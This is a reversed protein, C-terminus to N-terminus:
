QGIVTISCTEATMAANAPLTLTSTTTTPNWTGCSTGGTATGILLSESTYAVPFAYTQATSTNAYGSLACTAIKLTGQLTQSCNATGSTGNLTTTSPNIQYSSSNWIVDNTTWTMAGFGGTIDLNFAKASTSNLRFAYLVTPYSTTPFASFISNTNGNNGLEFQTNGSIKFTAQTSSPFYFGTSADSMTGNSAFQYTGFGATGNDPMLLSTRRWVPLSISSTELGQFLAASFAYATFTYGTASPHINDANMGAQCGPTFSTYNQTSGPWVRREDYVSYGYTGSLAFIQQWYGELLAGSTADDACFSTQPSGTTTGRPTNTMVVTATTSPISLATLFSGLNSGFTNAPVSGTGADNAGLRIAILAPNLTSVLQQVFGPFSVWQALQSGGSQAFDIIFGPQAQQATSIGYLRVNGSVNALAITHTASQGGTITVTTVGLQETGSTSVNHTSGGDVQYSFTGGSGTQEWFLTFTDFPFSASPAYSLSWTSTCDLRSGAPGWNQASTNDDRTTTCGSMSYTVASGYLAPQSYFNVYGLANIPAFQSIAYIWSLAGLGGISDAIELIHVPATSNGSGSAYTQSTSARALNWRWYTNPNAYLYRGFSGAATSPLFTTGVTVNGSLNVNGNKDTMVPRPQGFACVALVITLLTLKM